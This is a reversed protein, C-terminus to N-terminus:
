YSISSLCILTMVITVMVMVDGDSDGGGGSGDGDLGELLSGKNGARCLPM